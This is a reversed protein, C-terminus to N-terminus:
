QKKYFPITENLFYESLGEKKNIQIFDIIGNESAHNEAIPGAEKSIEFLEGEYDIGIMLHPQTDNEDMRIAALYAAQVQQRNKFLDTLDQVLKNPYNSPQGIQIQTDKEITLENTHEFISGDLMSEIEQPILEKGYDSFPNLILTAGKTLNFLDQGKMAMFPVQDKIVGKDFIRNTATFVPLQGNEFNVLKVNTDKELIKAGHELSTEEETLVILETWLLKTYFAKRSSSDSAAKILCKELDNEPFNSDTTKKKFIDFLGM